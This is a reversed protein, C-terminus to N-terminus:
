QPKSKQWEHALIGAAIAVNLSEAQGTRPISLRSIDPLAKITPSVGNAENGLLLYPRTSMDTQGPPHGEMDAIWIHQQNATIFQPLDQCYIARIRFCSGMSARIVKPNFYDATGASCILTQIGFWDATRILTGLNGPDRIEDLIFANGELDAPMQHNTEMWQKEDPFPLVVLVGEPNVQGALKDFPIAPLSYIKEPPLQRIRTELAPPIEGAKLILAEIPWGSKLAEDALKIGAATFCRHRHRYKKLQLASFLKVKAKSLPEM